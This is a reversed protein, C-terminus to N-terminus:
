KLIDTRRAPPSWKQRVFITGGRGRSATELHDKAERGGAGERGAQPPGSKDSLYPGGRRSRILLSNGLRDM